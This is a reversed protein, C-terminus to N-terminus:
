QPLYPLNPEPEPPPSVVPPPARYGKRIKDADEPALKYLRRYIESREKELASIAKFDVNLLPNYLSMLLLKLAEVNDPHESLYKKLNASAEEPMELKVQLRGLSLYLDKRSPDIHLAERYSPLADLENGTQLYLDALQEWIDASKPAYKLAQLLLLISDQSQNAEEYVLAMYRYPLPDKQDLFIAAEYAKAAGSLDGLLYRVQGLMIYALPIENHDAVFANLAKLAKQLDISHEVNFKASVKSDNLVTELITQIPILAKSPDFIDEQIGESSVSPLKEVQEVFLKGARAYQELSDLTTKGVAEQLSSELSQRETGEPIISRLVFYIEEANRVSGIAISRNFENLLQKKVDNVEATAKWKDLLILYYSIEKLGGSQIMEQILSLVQKVIAERGVKYRDSQFPIKAFYSEALQYYPSVELLPKGISEKAYSYGMLFLLDDLAEGTAFPIEEQLLQRAFPIRGSEINSKAVRMILWYKTFLDEFPKKMWASLPPRTADLHWVALAKEYNGKQYEVIGRFLLVWGENPGGFKMAKKVAKDLAEKNQSIYANFAENLLIELLLPFNAHMSADKEALELDQTSLSLENQARETYAKYLYYQMPALSAEVRELVQEAEAPHGDLYLGLAKNLEDDSNFTAVMIFLLIMLLSLVITIAAKIYAM